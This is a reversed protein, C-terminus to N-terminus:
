GRPNVYVHSDSYNNGLREVMAFVGGASPRGHSGELLSGPTKKNIRPYVMSTAINLGLAGHIVSRAYPHSCRTKTTSTAILANRVGKTGVSNAQASQIVPM